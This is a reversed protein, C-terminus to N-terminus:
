SNLLAEKVQEIFLHLSYNYAYPKLDWSEQLVDLAENYKGQKYLAEGKTWYYIYYYRQL